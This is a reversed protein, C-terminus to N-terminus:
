DRIDVSLPKDEFSVKIIFADDKSELLSDLRAIGGYIVNLEMESGISVFPVTKERASHLVTDKYSQFGGPWEKVEPLSSDTLYSLEYLNWSVRIVLDKFTDVDMFDNFRIRYLSAKANYLSRMSEDNEHEAQETFSSVSKINSNMARVIFSLAKKIYPRLEENVGTYLYIYKDM